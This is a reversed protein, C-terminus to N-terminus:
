KNNIQLYKEKTIDSINKYIELIEIFEEKHKEKLFIFKEDLFSFLYDKGLGLDDIAAFGGIIHTIEPLIKDVFKIFRAEKSDQAEYREIMKHVYPFELSFEKKIREFSESEKKIKNNKVDESTGVLTNTDGAYVEVLDHVLAFQSVLGIDLKDKYFTDALSCSILSLMFSHDTDSELRKGDEHRTIRNVKAFTFSLKALDFIKDLHEKKVEM